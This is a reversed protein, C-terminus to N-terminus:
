YRAFDRRSGYGVRDGSMRWPQAVFRWYRRLAYLIASLNGGRGRGPAPIANSACQEGFRPTM